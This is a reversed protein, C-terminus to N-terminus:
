SSSLLCAPCDVVEHIKAELEPTLEEPPGSVFGWAGCWCAYWGFHVSAYSARPALLDILEVGLGWRANTILRRAGAVVLKDALLPFHRCHRMLLVGVTIGSPFPQQYADAWVLRLNNVQAQGNSQGIEQFNDVPQYRPDISALASNIEIAYVLRAQRALRYALRLDGAGIELVVDDPQIHDLVAQYTPEDYPAWWREWEDATKPGTATVMVTM